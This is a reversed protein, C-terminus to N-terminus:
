ITRESFRDTQCHFFSVIEKGANDIYKELEM